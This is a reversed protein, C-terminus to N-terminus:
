FQELFDKAQERTMEEVIFIAKIDKWHKVAAMESSDCDIWESYTYLDKNEDYFQLKIKRKM